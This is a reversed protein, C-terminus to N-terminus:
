SNGSPGTEFHNTICSSIHLHLNMLGRPLDDTLMRPYCHVTVRQRLPLPPPTPATELFIKGGRPGWKPILTLPRAGRAGGQIRCQKFTKENVTSKRQQVTSTGHNRSYWRSFCTIAQSNELSSKVFQPSFVFCVRTLINREDNIKQDKKVNRQVKFHGYHWSFSKM